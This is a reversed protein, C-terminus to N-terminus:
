KVLIIKIMIISSFPPVSSGSVTYISTNVFCSVFLCLLCVVGMAFDAVPFATTGGSGVLSTDWWFKPCASVAGMM